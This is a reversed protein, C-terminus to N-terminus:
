KIDFYKTMFVTENDAELVYLIDNKYQQNM